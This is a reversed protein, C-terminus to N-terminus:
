IKNSNRLEQLKKYLEEWRRINKYEVFFGLFGSYSFLYQHVKEGKIIIEREQPKKYGYVLIENLEQSSWPNRGWKSHILDSFNIWKESELGLPSDELEKEIKTIEAALDESKEM